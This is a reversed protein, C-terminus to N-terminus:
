LKQRWYSTTDNGCDQILIRDTVLGIPRNANSTSAITLERLTHTENTGEPMQQIQVRWDGGSISYVRFYYDLGNDTVKNKTLTANLIKPCIISLDGIEDTQVEDRIPLAFTSPVFELNRSIPNEQLTARVTARATSQGCNRKDVSFNLGRNLFDRKMISVKDQLAQCITRALSKDENSLDAEEWPSTGIQPATRQETTDPEEIPQCSVLLALILLIM